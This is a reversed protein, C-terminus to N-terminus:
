RLVACGRNELDDLWPPAVELANWRLDLKELKPLGALGDPLHAFRNARLDLYALNHLNGVADPVSALHNNRLDLIRLSALDGIAEPLAELPNNSLHLERLSTLRGLSEPLRQLHNGYLRLERLGAMDGIADPLQSLHNDTINLYKLAAFRGFYAPVHSLQNHSLYLFDSIGFVEGLGDPLESLQNHGLDLMRLRRLNGIGDPIRTLSNESLNLKELNTLTWLWDPLDTLGNQSLSLDTLGPLDRLVEPVARLPNGRLELSDVDGLEAATYALQTLGRGRLDLRRGPTVSAHRHGDAPLSNRSSSRPDRSTPRPSGSLVNTLGRTATSDPVYTTKSWPTFHRSASGNLACATLCHPSGRSASASSGAVQSSCERPRAPATLREPREVLHYLPGMLLVAACPADPAALHPADGIAAEFVHRPQAQARAQAEAVHLPLPDILRVAYGTAALWASYIGPGGGIDLVAAPPPPLFREPTRALARIELSSDRELRPREGGLEYHAQIAPDLV